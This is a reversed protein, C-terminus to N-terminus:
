EAFGAFEPFAPNWDRANWNQALEPWHTKVTSQDTRAYVLAESWLPVRNHERMEQRRYEYLTKLKGYTPWNMRRGNKKANAPVQGNGNLGHGNRQETMILSILTQNESAGNRRDANKPTEPSGVIIANMVSHWWECVDNIVLPLWNLLGHMTEQWGGPHNSSAWLDCEGPDTELFLSAVTVNAGNECLEILGAELWRGWLDPGLQLGVDLSIIGAQHPIVRLFTTITAGSSCLFRHPSRELIGAKVEYLDKAMTHQAELEKTMKGGDVFFAPRM